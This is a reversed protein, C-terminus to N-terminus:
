FKQNKQSGTRLNRMGFFELLFEHSKSFQNNQENNERQSKCNGNRCKGGVAGGRILRFARGAMTGLALTFHSRCYLAGTEGCVLDGIQEGLALVCLLSGM